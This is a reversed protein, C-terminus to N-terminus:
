LKKLRFLFVRPLTRKSIPTERFFCLIPNLILVIHSFVIASILAALNCLSSRDDVLEELFSKFIASGSAFQTTYFSGNPEINSGAFNNGALIKKIFIRHILWLLSIARSVVRVAISSYCPSERGTKSNM